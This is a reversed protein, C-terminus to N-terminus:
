LQDEEGKQNDDLIDNINASYKALKTVNATETGTKSSGKDQSILHDGSEEDDFIDDTLTFGRQTNEGTWWDPFTIFTIKDRVPKLKTLLILIIVIGVVILLILFAIQTSSISSPNSPTLTPQNPCPQQTTKHQVGDVCTDGAVKRYGDSQNYFTGVPCDPPALPVDGQLVCITYDQTDEQYGFDCEWDENTCM